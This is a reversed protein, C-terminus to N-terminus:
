YLLSFFPWVKLTMDASCQLLLKLIDNKGGVVSCMVASRLEKDLRNIFEVSSVRSLILYAM